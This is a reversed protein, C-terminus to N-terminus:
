YSLFSTLTRANTGSTARYSGRFIVTYSRKPLLNLNNLATLNSTTGTARVYLTDSLASAYPIFDTVTTTSINTFVNANRKVSFIDVNPIAATSYPFNAFRLRATTDYVPMGIQDSVVKLKANNLSDYAFATYYGNEQMLIDNNVSVQTTPVLTDRILINRLGADLVFHSPSVTPFAAGYAVPAGVLPMRDAYIFTRNSGIIGNYFKLQAKTKFAADTQITPTFEKDCAMLAVATFFTAAAYKFLNPINM